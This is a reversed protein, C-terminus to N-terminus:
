GAVRRRKAREVRRELPEDTPRSFTVKVDDLSDKGAGIAALMNQHQDHFGWEKSSPRLWAGWALFQRHTLPGEWGLLESLSVGLAHALRFHEDLGRASKKREAGRRRGAARDM